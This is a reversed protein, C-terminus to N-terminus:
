TDGPLLIGLLLSIILIVVLLEVLTFGCAPRRRLITLRM